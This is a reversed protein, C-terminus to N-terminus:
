STPDSLVGPVSHPAKARQNRPNGQQPGAQAAPAGGVTTRFSFSSYLVLTTDQWPRLRRSCRKKRSLCRSRSRMWLTAASFSMKLWATCVTRRAPGRPAPHPSRASSGAPAPQRGCSRRIEPADSGPHSTGSCQGRLWCIDGPGRWGQHPAPLEGPSGGRQSAGRGLRTGGQFEPEKGPFHPVQNELSKAPSNTGEERSPVLAPLGALLQPMFALPKSPGQGTSQTQQKPTRTGLFRQKQPLAQKRSFESTCYFCLGFLREPVTPRRTGSSGRGWPHGDSVHGPGLSHEARHPHGTAQGTVGAAQAHGPPAWM